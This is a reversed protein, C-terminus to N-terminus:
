GNVGRSKRSNNEVRDQMLPQVTRFFCVDCFHMADFKMGNSKVKVTCFDGDNNCGKGDCTRTVTKM